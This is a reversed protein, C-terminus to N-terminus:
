GKGGLNKLVLDTMLTALSVNVVDSKEVGLKKVM